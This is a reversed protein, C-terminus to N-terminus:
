CKCQHLEKEAVSGRGTMREGSQKLKRLEKAESSSALLDAEVVRLRAELVQIHEASAANYQTSQNRSEEQFTDLLRRYSEVEMRATEALKAEKLRETKEASLEEELVRRRSAEEESSREADSCLRRATRAREELTSSRVSLGAIAGRLASLYTPLTEVTLLSPAQVSPIAADADACDAQTSEFALMDGVNSLQDNWKNMDAELEQIRAEAEAYNRRLEEVLGLREELNRKQEKLAEVSESRTKLIRNERQLGLTEGELRHIKSLLESLESTLKKADQHEGGKQELREREEEWEKERIDFALIVKEKAEKCEEANAKASALEFELAAIRLSQKTEEGHSSQALQTREVRAEELNSRLDQNQQQLTNVQENLFKRQEEFSEKEERREFNAEEWQRLLALKEQKIRETERGNARFEAQLKEYAQKSLLERREHEAKLMSM